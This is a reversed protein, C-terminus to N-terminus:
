RKASQRGPYLPRSNDLEYNGEAWEEADQTLRNLSQQVWVQYQQLQMRDISAPIQIRPGLIARARSGLKPIAFQDWARRYRWPRDYGFGMCVLPVQLKSSLYICGPAVQRRPGKPGDPTIALNMRKGRTMLDKLARVGGRTSSGRVTEFGCFSAAHSLFEADRHQSLLMAVNCHGRLYFPFPIYEHWFLFISPSQNRYLAPDVTPDYYAVRYDLTSM